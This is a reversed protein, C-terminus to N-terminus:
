LLTNIFKVYNSIVVKKDFSKLVQASQLFNPSMKRDEIKNKLELIQNILEATNKARNTFESPYTWIVECGLSLAEYVSLANGDHKTMRLFIPNKKMLDIVETKEKWGHVILNEPLNDYNTANTGIVHFEIDVLVKAAEIILDFGYLDENNNGVYSLVSIKDYNTNLTNTSLHKFSLIKSNIGIEELENKLYEFDTVHTSSNIYDMLITGNYFREKALMVDSGQWQMLIKKKWKMAWNLAGSFDSVGNFSIVLSSFPLLIFFLIKDIKSYYTNLFIYRNNSDFENLDKVLNKGFLPLGNVLVFM